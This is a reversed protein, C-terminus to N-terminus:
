GRSVFARNPGLLPGAGIAVAVRLDHGRNGDCLNQAARGSAADEWRIGDGANRRLTNHLLAPAARDAVRIGHANGECLNGHGEGRADGEWALGAGGNALLICGEAALDARDTALVGPGGCAEVFVARLVAHADGGVVVGAGGAGAVRVDQLEARTAGGLRVAGAVALDRLVVPGEADIALAAVALTADGGGVLALPRRIALRGAEHRGPALVLVAGAPAADIAAQLDDGPAIAMSQTMVTM